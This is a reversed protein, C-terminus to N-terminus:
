ITQTEGKGGGGGRSFDPIWRLKINKNAAIVCLTQYLPPSPNGVGLCLGGGGGGGGGYCFGEWVSFICLIYIICSILSVFM